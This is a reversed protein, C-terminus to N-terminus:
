KIENFQEQSQLFSEIRGVPQNENSLIVDNAGCMCTPTVQYLTSCAYALKTKNTRKYGTPMMKSYTLIYVQSM